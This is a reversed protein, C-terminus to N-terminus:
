FLCTKRQGIKMMPCYRKGGGKPTFQYQGILNVCLVDWPKSEVEKASLKGYHKKNRKLFLCANLAFRM